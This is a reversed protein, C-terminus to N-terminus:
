LILQLYRPTSQTSVCRGSDKPDSFVVSSFYYKLFNSQNKNQYSLEDVSINSLVNPRRQLM